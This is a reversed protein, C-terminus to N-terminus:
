IGAGIIADCFLMLKLAGFRGSNADGEEADEEEEDKDDHPKKKKENKERPYCICTRTRRLCATPITLRFSPM